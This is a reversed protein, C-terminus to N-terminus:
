VRPKSVASKSRSSWLLIGVECCVGHNQVHGYVEYVNEADTCGGSAQPSPMVQQLLEKANSLKRYCCNFNSTFCKLRHSNPLLASQAAADEVSEEESSDEYPETQTSQSHSLRQGDDALSSMRLPDGFNPSLDGIVRLTELAADFKSRSEQHDDTPDRAM